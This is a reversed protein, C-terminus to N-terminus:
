TGHKIEAMMHNGKDCLLILRATAYVVNCMSYTRLPLNRYMSHFYSGMRNSAGRLMGVKKGGYAAMLLNMVILHISYHAVSGIVDYLQSPELILRQPIAFFLM